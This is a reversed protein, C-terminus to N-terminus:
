KKNKWKPRHLAQPSSIGDPFRREIFHMECSLRIDYGLIVNAAPFLYWFARVLIYIESEVFIWHCKRM